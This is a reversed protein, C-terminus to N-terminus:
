APRLEDFAGTCAVQHMLVQGLMTCAEGYSLGPSVEKGYRVLFSNPAGMTERAQLTVLGHQFCLVHGPEPARYNMEITYYHRSM